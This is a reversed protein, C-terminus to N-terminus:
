GKNGLKGALWYTYSTEFKYEAVGVILLVECISFTGKAKWSSWTMWFLEM